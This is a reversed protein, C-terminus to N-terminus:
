TSSASVKTPVMGASKFVDHVVWNIIRRGDVREMDDGPDLDKLSMGKETIGDNSLEYWEEEQIRIWDDM